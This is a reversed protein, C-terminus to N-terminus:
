DATLDDDDEDDDEDEEDLEDDLDPEDSGLHPQLPM